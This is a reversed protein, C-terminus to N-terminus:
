RVRISKKLIIYDSAYESEAGLIPLRTNAQLLYIGVSLTYEGSPLEQPLALRHRDWVYRDTPWRNTPFGAPNLHDSQAWVEGDPGVFHVFSQYTETLPHQAHWYLTVDLVGGPRVRKSSLDFGLLSIEGGINAAQHYQAARAEGPPSHYYFWGFASDGLKLIVMLVILGVIWAMLPPPSTPEELTADGNKVSKIGTKSRDGPHIWALYLVGGILSLGAIGWGLRRPWTDEFRLWVEHEGAPVEVTIFGEPYAIEIPARQGDIYARWGPFHFLYLRLLFKEPTVIAFRNHWPASPLVEVRTQEPLTYRNVRDVPPPYSALVSEHPGPIIDVTTPVFDNTSTTGRWLGELEEEIISRPTITGFADEWPPLALGPLATFGIAGLFLLLLVMSRKNQQARRGLIAIPPVILAALPGLFRWPFQYYAMGPTMEWVPRSLPTILFICTAGSAVYFGISRLAKQKLSLLTGSIFLAGHILGLTMPAHPVVAGWDLKPLPAFLERLMVFHNRFDYHGEGAVDLKIHAREMVFPLWFYATLGMVLVGALLARWFADQHRLVLWHWLSLLMLLIMMTLGSLNHSLLVGGASLIAIIAIIFSVKNSRNKSSDQWLCEWSWLAWPILAVAFVEALDGRIHSNILFIYPSFTFAAAGLLGGGQRGFKKGLLYAGVTGLVQSLIFLLKAGTAAHQPQLLTLWNGLHYTLPAYYNFIPYGHGYYFDPAWRPYLNGAQLSFGLEAIRFIHLEADTAGPLGPNALFPWSALFGLAVALLLGLDFAQWM